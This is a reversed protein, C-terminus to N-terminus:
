TGNEEGTAQGIGLLGSLKKQVEIVVEAQSLKHRLRQNEATLREVESALPDKSRRGRRALLSGEKRQRRWAVLHSSYLGERRLLAGIEGPEICRDAEEVIRLKYDVTFRRRKAKELVEPDPPNDMGGAHVGPQPRTMLMTM